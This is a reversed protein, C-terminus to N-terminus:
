NYEYEYPSPGSYAMDGHLNGRMFWHDPNCIPCYKTSGMKKLRREDNKTGNAWTRVVHWGIGAKTVYRMLTAGNGMKHHM